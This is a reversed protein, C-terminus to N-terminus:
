RCATVAQDAEPRFWRGDDDEEVAVAPRGDPGPWARAAALMALGVLLLAPLFVAVTDILSEPM